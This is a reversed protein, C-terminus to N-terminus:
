RTAKHSFGRTSILRNFRINHGMCPYFYALRAILISHLEIMVISQCCQAGDFSNMDNSCAKVGACWRMIGNM